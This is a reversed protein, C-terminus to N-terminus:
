LISCEKRCQQYQNQDNNIITYIYVIYINIIIYISLPSSHLYFYKWSNKFSACTVKISLVCAESRVLLSYKQILARLCVVWIIQINFLCTLPQQYTPSKCSKTRKKSANPILAQVPKQSVTKPCSYTSMTKSNKM